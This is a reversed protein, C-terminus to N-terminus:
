VTELVIGTQNYELLSNVFTCARLYDESWAVPICIGEKATLQMCQMLDFRLLARGGHWAETDTRGDPMAIHSPGPCINCFLMGRRTVGERGPQKHIQGGHFQTM